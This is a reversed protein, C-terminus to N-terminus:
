LLNEVSIKSFLHRQQPLNMYASMEASEYIKMGCALQRLVTLIKIELPISPKGCVDKPGYNFVKGPIARCLDVIKLFVPYPTRFMKRFQKGQSSSTDSVNPHTILQMYLNTGTDEPNNPMQRKANREYNDRKRKKISGDKNRILNVGDELHGIDSELLDDVM